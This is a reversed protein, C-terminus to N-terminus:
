DQLELHERLESRMSIWEPNDYFFGIRERWAGPREDINRSLVFYLFSEAFDPLTETQEMTEGPRIDTIVTDKQKPFRKYFRSSIEEPNQQELWTGILRLMRKETETENYWQGQENLFDNLDLFFETIVTEEEGQESVYYDTKEGLGDTYFTIRSIRDRFAAPIVRNLKDFVQRSRLEYADSAELLTGNADFRALITSSPHHPKMEVEYGDTAQTLTISLKLLTNHWIYEAGNPGSEEIDPLGYWSELRERMDEFEIGAGDADLTVSDLKNDIFYYNSLIIQNVDFWKMPYQYGEMLHGEDEHASILIGNQRFRGELERRSIGFGFSEEKQHAYAGDRIDNMFRSKARMSPSDPSMIQAALETVCKATQVIREIDVTEMFDLPTGATYASRKWTLCVAPIQGHLFSVADSDMRMEYELTEGSAAQFSQRLMNGLMTEKGDATGLVLEPFDLSACSDLQIIGIVRSREKETMSEVYYRSGLWGDEFGSFSVFRIETDTELQATLRATELWAATAAASQAAGPSGKTTDHHTGIILIDADEAAAKRVAEVNTGTVDNSNTGNWLRFRQRKVDYGYDQLYQQLMRATETEGRSGSPRASATLLGLIEQIYFPNVEELLPRDEMLEWYEMRERHPLVRTSPGACATALLGFVTLGGFLSIPIKRFKGM